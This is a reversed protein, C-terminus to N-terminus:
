GLNSFKPPPSIQEEKSRFTCSIKSKCKCHYHRKDVKTHKQIFLDETFRRGKFHLKEKKVVVAVEYPVHYITIRQSDQNLPNISKITM